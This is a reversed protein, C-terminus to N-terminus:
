NAQLKLLRRANGQYIQEREERSIQLKDIVRITERIYLGDEPDFPYDSAFLVHDAGFFDLGCKTASLSGFLATDAYFMKFYELPRKKMSKRLGAYDEESSRKGLQDWGYGVRGEFYPAMAGMHHTIVKLNPLRDFLGSFVMRAMAASTEYPWGFAWWIEYKSKEESLYDPFNAGRAPHLWLPLDYGAMGEFISAFAPEDLPRGAANSFLQVGRAGLEKIARHMEGAAAEPDNMPLSAVFGIFRDPHREVLEAMGDNAMKALLPSTEPGALVELPPSALSLVQCYEGFKDMMRFRANLDVLTPVNRVRKGMDKHGPAVEMMTKFFREPFIHNFVDIKM